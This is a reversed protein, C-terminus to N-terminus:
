QREHSHNPNRGIMKLSWWHKGWAGTGGWPELGLAAFFSTAQAVSRLGNGNSWRGLGGTVSGGASFPLDASAVLPAGDFFSPGECTHLLPNEVNATTDTHTPVIATKVARSEFDLLFLM